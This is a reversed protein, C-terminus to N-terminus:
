YVRSFLFFNCLIRNNLGASYVGRKSQFVAYIGIRGRAHLCFFRCLISFFVTSDWRKWLSVLKPPGCADPSVMDIMSVPINRQQTSCSPVLPTSVPTLGTGGGMLSEFNFTMGTSPTSIPVGIVDTVTKPMSAIVNLSNPRNPKCIPVTSSLMVKKTPSPLLFIDNMPGILETKVREVELRDDYLHNNNFPKVDPPSQTHLRCDISNKHKELIFELYNKANELEQLEDELAHKKSELDETEQLM